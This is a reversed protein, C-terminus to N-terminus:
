PGLGQRELNTRLEELADRELARIRQPSLHLEAAIERLSEEPGALGFHHTIVERRTAGLRAVARRLLEAQELELAETEPDSAADVLIPEDLPVLTVAARRVDAAAASALGSADALESITPARGNAAEVLEHHILELARRREVVQKPLRVLRGQGTLANKMARRVRFRAFSEFDGRAPDYRDVADLLGLAGEQILDDRSLGLDRYRSAIAAITGLNAAVVRGQAGRDGRRAARLLKRRRM